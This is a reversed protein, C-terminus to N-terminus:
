GQGISKKKKLPFSDDSFLLVRDSVTRFYNTIPSVWALIAVQRRGCPHLLIRWPTGGLAWCQSSPSWPGTRLIAQSTLFFVAHAGLHWAEYPFQSMCGLFFTLCSHAHGYRPQTPSLLFSGCVCVCMETAFEVSRLNM